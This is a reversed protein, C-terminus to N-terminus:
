DRWIAGKECYPLMKHKLFMQGKRFWEKEQWRHHNECVFERLKIPGRKNKAERMLPTEKFFISIGEHNCIFHFNGTALEYGVPSIFNFGCQPCLLEHDQQSLDIAKQTGADVM